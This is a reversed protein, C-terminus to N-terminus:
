KGWETSKMFKLHLHHVTHMLTVSFSLWAFQFQLFCDYDYITFVTVKLIKM